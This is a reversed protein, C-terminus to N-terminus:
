AAKGLVDKARIYFEKADLAVDIGLELCRGVFRSYLRQLDMEDAGLLLGNMVIEDALALADDKRINTRKWKSLLLLPDGKVSVDSVIQKFSGQIKDLVSTAIVSLGAGTYASTLARWVKSHASHFVITAMSETKLVREIEGFVSAMMEGYDTVNKGQAKSVIIERERNTTSGLWLENIQNIEAYPIYDGFPPDTFVYDVSSNPLEINESSTNHIHVISSSGYILEFAEVFPKAKRAIGEFINKEVPLGSVYLVGSQAGTLVFDRQGRKVVVRTMLTSHSANYSLVLLRLANRVDEDFEDILSWLTALALFNRRTYFHHLKEIGTHYGARYLDGWVLQKNPSCSPLQVNEINDILLYDDQSPPRHWRKKGTSGYVRAPVRKRREIEGGFEDRVTETARVCVDIKCSHKCTPCNFDSSLSLPAHEVAATWYPTETHCAPCVLVESWIIHRIVGRSGSTDKAEYIWGVRGEAKRKLEAFAKSFKEPNPPSCLTKAIFSGLVGIEFLHATRPGWTPHLGMKKAMALMTKTPRDCLLAALGTTGSGSFTDLITAGPETHTAIFLAVVEPSIKTPYSFANYLPGTRTSPLPNEYLAEIHSALKKDM